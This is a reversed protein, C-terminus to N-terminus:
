TNCNGAYWTLAWTWKQFDQATASPAKMLITLTSQDFLKLTSNLWFTLLTPTTTPRAMLGLLQSVGTKAQWFSTACRFLSKPYSVLKDILKMKYRLRDERISKSCINRIEKYQRYAGNNGTRKCEAWCHRKLSLLRLTRNKIVTPQKYIELGIQPVSQRTSFLITPLLYDWHTDM